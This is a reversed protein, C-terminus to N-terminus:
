IAPGIHLCLPAFPDLRCRYCVPEGGSPQVHAAPALPYSNKYPCIVRTGRVSQTMDGTAIRVGELTKLVVFGHGSGQPHRVPVPEAHLNAPLLVAMVLLGLRGSLACALRSYDQRM